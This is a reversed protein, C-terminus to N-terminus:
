MIHLQNSVLDPTPMVISLSPLYSLLSLPRERPQVQLIICAETISYANLKAPCMQEIIVLVAERLAICRLIFCCKAYIIILILKTSGEVAEVEDAISLTSLRANLAPRRILIANVVKSKVVCSVLLRLEVELHVVDEVLKPSLVSINDPAATFVAPVCHRASAEYNTHM